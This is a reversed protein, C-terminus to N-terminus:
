LLSPWVPVGRCDIEKAIDMASIRNYNWVAGANILAQVVDIRGSSVTRHFPIFKENKVDVGANLLGKVITLNGQFAAVNLATHGWRDVKEDVQCLKGRTAYYEAIDTKGEEMLKDLVKEPEGQVHAGAQLRPLRHGKEDAM